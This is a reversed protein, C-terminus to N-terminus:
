ECEGEDLLRVELVEEVELERSYIGLHGYEGKGSRSGRVEAYAHQYWDVGLARYSDYLETYTEDSGTIWWLADSGCPSFDSAEFGFAVRGRYVKEESFIDGVLDCGSAAAALLVIFAVSISRRM